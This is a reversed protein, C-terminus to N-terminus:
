PTIEVGQTMFSLGQQGITSVMVAEFLPKNNPNKVAWDFIFNGGTGGLTDTEFLMIEATEMSNIYIPKDIYANIMNGKTDFYNASKIYIKDTKSTNRLSVTATLNHSRHQSISYIHTYVSLYTSGETLSDLESPNALRENWAEDAPMPDEKPAESSCSSIFAFVFLLFVIRIM